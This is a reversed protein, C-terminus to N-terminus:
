YGTMNTRTFESFAQFGTYTFLVILLLTVVVVVLFVPFKKKKGNSRDENDPAM